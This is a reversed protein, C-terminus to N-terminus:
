GWIDFFDVQEGGEMSPPGGTLYGVLLDRCERILLDRFLPEDPREGEVELIGAIATLGLRVALEPDPRDIEARHELILDELGRLLQRRFRRYGDGHGAGAQDLAELVAARSRWADALMSAAGEALQELDLDSWSRSALAEEWRALADHWVREGLYEILDDKGRFRAYFSGVSSRAREVVAQVTLGTPGEEELLALSAAVIRELSRRSRSQKPPTLHTTAPM